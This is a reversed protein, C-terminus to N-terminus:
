DERELFATLNRVPEGNRVSTYDLDLGGETLTRHYEQMQYGGDEDVHLSFLSLTDDVIRSWVFPEGKMPDLQVSHGFVNKRQAAAFVNDRDTPLFDVSYSSVKTRGDPRYTTSVWDITFGKDTERVEVGMDRPENEGELTLNASGAYRGVFPGIDAAAAALPTLLLAGLVFALTVALPRFPHLLSM